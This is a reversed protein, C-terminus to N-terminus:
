KVAYLPKHNADTEIVSILKLTLENSIAQRYHCSM